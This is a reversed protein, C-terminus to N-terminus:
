FVFQYLDAMSLILGLSEISFSFQLDTLARDPLWQNTKHDREYLRVWVEGPNVIFYAQLSNIKRYSDAKVALDQMATSPSLVEVLVIPERVGEKANKDGESCTAVVDPLRYEENNIMLRVNETFVRCGKPYFHDSLLRYANLVVQNHQNTTYEDTFPILQGNVYEYREGPKANQAIAEYEAVSYRHNNKLLADGM